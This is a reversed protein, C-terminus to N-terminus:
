RRDARQPAHTLKGNSNKKKSARLPAVLRVCTGRGPKSDIDVEGGVHELREYVSLLGLSRNHAGDSSRRDADFGIGNDAVEVILYNDQQRLTVTAATCGAHRIVNSILERVAQFLMLETKRPLRIGTAENNMEFRVGYSSRQEMLWEIAPGLGLEYLVTPSLEFTLTRTQVLTQSLLERVEDIGATHEKPLAARLMGLRLKAAALSQGIHDHIDQAIRRREQEEVMTLKSAMQRLRERSSRLAQESQRQQTVDRIMWRLTAPLGHYERVAAATLHVVRPGAKRPTLTLDTELRAVERLTRLHAAFRVRDERAVYLSLPKGLVYPPWVNLLAAAALNSEQIRGRDDTLLYGDPAFEFLDRYRERQAEAEERAAQLEDQTAHLEELAVRLSEVEEAASRTPKGAITRAGYLM